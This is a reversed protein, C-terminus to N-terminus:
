DVSHEGKKWSLEDLGMGIIVLMLAIVPIAPFVVEGSM